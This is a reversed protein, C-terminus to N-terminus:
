PSEQMIRYLKRLLPLVDDRQWNPKVWALLATGSAIANKEALLAAAEDDEVQIDRVLLAKAEALVVEGPPTKPMYVVRDVPDGGNIQYTVPIKSGEGFAIIEYDVIEIAM